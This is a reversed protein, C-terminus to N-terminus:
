ILYHAHMRIILPLRKTKEQYEIDDLAYIDMNQKIQNLWSEDHEKFNEGYHRDAGTKNQNDFDDLIQFEIKKVAPLVSKVMQESWPSLAQADTAYYHKYFQQLQAAQYDARLLPMEYDASDPSLYDNINQTYAKISFDYIPVEVAYSLSLFLMLFFTAIRKSLQKGNLQNCVM